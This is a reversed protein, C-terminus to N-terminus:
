CVFKKQYVISDYAEDPCCDQSSQSLSVRADPHPDNQSLDETPEQTERSSNRSAEPAAGSHVYIQPNLFFEDLKSLAGLIRSDVRSFKQSLKKTLSGEIKESVHNIYDEQIRFVIGHRAIGSISRITRGKSPKKSKNRVTTAM